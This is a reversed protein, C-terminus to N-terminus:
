VKDVEWYDLEVPVPRGWFTVEVTVKPTDGPDKAEHIAKVEGEQGAFAGSKIRVKDGKDFDLKVVTKMPRGAKGRDVGPVGTLIAQVERDTMPIPPSREFGGGSTRRTKMGVFDGVGATERFVYLISDNFEVEAFIYGPYKKVKKVVNREQTHTEIEGTAKNKVRVKVKRKENIEEVPIVIQGFYKELGDIHIRREIAAKISEERGSQVKIAYWKKQSESPQEEVPPEVTGTAPAVATGGEPSIAAAVPAPSTTPQDTEAMPVAAKGKSTRRASKPKTPTPSVSASSAVAAEDTKDAVLHDAALHSASEDTDGSPVEGATTPEVSALPEAPASEFTREHGPDGSLAARDETTTATSVVNSTSDAEPPLTESSEPQEALQNVGEAAKSGSHDSVAADTSTTPLDEAPQSGAEAPEAVLGHEPSTGGVDAQDSSGPSTEDAPIESLTVSTVNDDSSVAVPAPAPASGSVSAYTGEPGDSSVPTAAAATLPSETPKSDESM